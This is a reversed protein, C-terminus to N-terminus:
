LRRVQAHITTQLSAGGPVEIAEGAAVARELDLRSVWPEVGLAYAGALPMARAGGYPQWAIVWRFVEEDWDLRFALGLRPNLVEAYGGELDTLYVDDHSGEEPGPVFRLDVAGGARLRAHPWSSRQDPELRATEEWLDPITVITRAPVDLRCGGELFPSGLVCHHGWVLHAPADSRNRATEDLVLVGADLRMRRELRLPTLVSDVSLVLTDGDQEAQWPLSAAEGHFPMSQGRYTCPDNASPFLEQWGGGYNELFAHGDSGERPPSGPPQLGWPAKFLVDIGSELDVLEHVEAGKEPLVTVRLRGDEATLARWGRVAGETIV